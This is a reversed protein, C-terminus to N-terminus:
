QKKRAPHNRRSSKLLKKAQELADKKRQQDHQELLEQSRTIVARLEDDTLAGLDALVESPKPM